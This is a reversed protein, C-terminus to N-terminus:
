GTRAQGALVRGLADDAAHLAEEKATVASFVLYRLLQLEQQSNQAENHFSTFIVTGKGQRFKVLLPAEIQEADVSKYTGRILVQVDNGTFRGPMGHTTPSGSASRKASRSKFDRTWSKCRRRIQRRAGDYDILLRDRM